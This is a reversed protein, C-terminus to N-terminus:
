PIQNPIPAALILTNRVKKVQSLTESFEGEDQPGPVKLEGTIGYMEVWTADRELAEVLTDVLSPRQSLLSPSNMLVSEVSHEILSKV